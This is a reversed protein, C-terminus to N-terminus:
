PDVRGKGRHIEGVLEIGFGFEKDTDDESVWGTPVNDKSTANSNQFSLAGRVATINNIFKKYGFGGQYELAGLFGLGSFSFLM